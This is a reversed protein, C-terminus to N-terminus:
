TPTEGARKLKECYDGLEKEIAKLQVLVQWAEAYKGQTALADKQTVLKDYLEVGERVFPDNLYTSAFTCPHGIPLFDGLSGAPRPIVHAAILEGVRQAAAAGADTAAKVSAVDGRFLFIVIGGEIKEYKVPIVNAAKVAADAAEIM